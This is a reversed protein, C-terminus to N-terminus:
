PKDLNQLFKKMERWLVAVPLGVVNYYDGQVQEVLLAGKGQIGYGGAKDKWEGVSLYGEIEKETLDFFRVDTKQCFSMEKTKCVLTVGTYVQHTRGSLTQLTKKADDYNKPKGYITNGLSVVTDCGIILDQSFNQAVTYAKEGALMKVYAEPEQIGPASEKIDAPYVEFTPLIMKLLAQRRPSASALITNM